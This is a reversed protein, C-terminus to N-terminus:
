IQFSNPCPLVVNLFAKNFFAKNVRGNATLQPLVKVASARGSGVYNWQDSRNSAKDLVHLFVTLKNYPGVDSPGLPLCSTQLLWLPLKWSFSEYWPVDHIMCQHIPISSPFMKLYPLFNYRVAALRLSLFRAYNSPTFNIKYRFQQLIYKWHVVM